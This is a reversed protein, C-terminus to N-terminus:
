RADSCEAECFRQFIFDTFNLYKRVFTYFVIMIVGGNEKVLPLVDDPVNRHTDALARASSHSFMVPATTTELVDKMTHHSVHSIDVIMGLRNM